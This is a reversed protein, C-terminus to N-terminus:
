AHAEEDAPLADLAQELSELDFGAVFGRFFESLAQGMDTSQPDLLWQVQLGDM